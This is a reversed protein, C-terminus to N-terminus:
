EMVSVKTTICPEPGLKNPLFQSCWMRNSQCDILCSLIYQLLVLFYKATGQSGHIIESGFKPKLCVSLGLKEPRMWDRKGELTLNLLLKTPQLQFSSADNALDAMARPSGGNNSHGFFVAM